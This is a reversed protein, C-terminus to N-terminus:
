VHARGIQGIQALWALGEAFSRSAARHPLDANGLVLAAIYVAAFGSAHVAPGAGYALLTLCLVAIPYLGSSPLAARRMIWAGGFGVGRGILVGAVLEYVVIAAVTIGGQEAAAGSWCLSSPLAERLSLTHWFM